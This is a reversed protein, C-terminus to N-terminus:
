GGASLPLLRLPDVPVGNLRIEFHVHPGTSFGTSGSIGLLSGQFVFQGPLVFPPLAMHGYLTSVGHGHDVMVYYGYGSTPDGGAFSVIGQASSRVAGGLPQGIDIGTHPAGVGLEPVGFPQTIPGVAPWAFPTSLLQASLKPPLVDSPRVLASPHLQMGQLMVDEVFTARLGVEVVAATNEDTASAASANQQAQQIQAYPVTVTSGAPVAAAAPAATPGTPDAASASPAVLDKLHQQAASLRDAAAQVPDSASTTGAQAAVVPTAQPETAVVSSQNGPVTAVAPVPAAASSSVVPQAIANALQANATPAAAQASAALTKADRQLSEVKQQALAVAAQATALKQLDPHPQLADLQQQAAAVNPDNDPNVAYNAAQQLAGLQDEARKVSDQATAIQQPDVQRALTRGAAGTAVQGAVPDPAAAPSTLSVLSQKADLVHQEAQSIQDPSPAPPLQAKADAVAKQAAALHDAPPQPDLAIVQLQAASLQAEAQQLQAQNAAAAAAQQSVALNPTAQATPAVTRAALAASPAAAQDRAKVAAELDTQAQQVQAQADAVAQSDVSPTPAAIPAVVQQSSLQAERVLNALSDLEAQSLNATSPPAAMQALVQQLTQTDSAATAAETVAAAMPKEIAAETAATATVATVAPTLSPILPTAPQEAAPAGAVVPPLVQAPAEAIPGHVARARPEILPLRLQSHTALGVALGAGGATVVAAM